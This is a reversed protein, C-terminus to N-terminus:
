FSRAAAKSTAESLAKKVENSAPDLRLAEQFAGVAGRYDEMFSLASGQRYWAKAWGPRLTKCQRADLLARDGERMRLWCLSRNAYLTADLPDIEMVMGYYYMATFYDQKVFAEKGKSKLDVIREEASVVDMNLRDSYVVLIIGFHMWEQDRPRILEEAPALSNLEYYSGYM